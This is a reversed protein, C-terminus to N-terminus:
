DERGAPEAGSSKGKGRFKEYTWTAARKAAKGTTKGAAGVPKAIKQKAFAKAEASLGRSGARAPPGLAEDFLRGMASWARLAARRDYAVGDSRDAGSAPNTFSHVARGYVNMQWDAKARRMEQQFAVVEGQPVHPDDAGHLVLVTAKIKGAETPSPTDLGGHFSVVAEVAAGSRALELAVTGGFCYGIAAVKNPDVRKDAKLKKLGALARRRMLVRDRKFRNALTAAQRTTEARRGKGYIDAALAVYGLRALERARTKAYDNLGWWEHFVLVGPRPGETAEDWALYGELVTEGDAYEVTETRMQVQASASPATAAVAIVFATMWKKTRRRIIM